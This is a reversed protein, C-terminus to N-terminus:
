IRECSRAGRSSWRSELRDAERPPSQQHEADQQAPAEEREEPECPDDRIHRDGLEAAELRDVLRRPSPPCPRAGEKRADRRRPVDESQQNALEVELTTIDFRAM